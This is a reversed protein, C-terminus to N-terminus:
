ADEAASLLCAQVATEAAAAKHLVKMLLLSM